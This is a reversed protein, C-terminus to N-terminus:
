EASDVRAIATNGHIQVYCNALQVYQALSVNEPRVNPNIGADELQQDSFLVKLANRLTKRRQSFATRVVLELAEHSDAKHPLELHPTLRVIASEVKPVPRFCEPGVDFLHEVQCFYQTMIGLRGYNNDGVQAAMRLVVEKQLMFHMDRVLQRFSLLHFILPTSINYPLNGVIRLPPKNQALTAFDFKLADAQHVVLHPFDSFTAKLIPILDRDLEVVHLHACANLLLATIAGKGPGIEVLNDGAQPRISRVIHNIIRQDVLFNQGFRKRAQHEVQAM